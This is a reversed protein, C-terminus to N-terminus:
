DGLSGLLLTLLPDSQLVKGLWYQLVIMAIICGLFGGMVVWALVYLNVDRKGTAKTIEVERNRAGARDQMALRDQELAIRSLEM